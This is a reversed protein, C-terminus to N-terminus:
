WIEQQLRCDLWTRQRETLKGVHKEIWRVDGSMLAAKEESTLDYGSLTRSPRDTLAAIFSPDDAARELVKLIEDRNTGIEEGPYVLWPAFLTDIKKQREMVKTAQM